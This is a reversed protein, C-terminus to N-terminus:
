LPLECQVTVPRRVGGISLPGLPTRQSTAAVGAAAARARQGGRRLAHRVTEMSLAPSTNTESLHGLLVTRLGPHAVAQAVDAAQTNSLHGRDSRIRTKLPWPYPGRLLQAEDHNAEILLGDLKEFVTLLRDPAHGLDLALGFRAGSRQSTFVFAACDAADHPVPTSVIALDDLQWAVEHVIPHPSTPSAGLAALTPTAAWLPWGWRACSELAGSAHDVHEHTLLLAQVSEPACGVARLRQAMARPGFGADVVVRTTGSDILVANGRSGSGLVSVYM